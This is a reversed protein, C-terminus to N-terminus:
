GQKVPTTELIRAQAHAPLGIGLGSTPPARLSLPPGTLISPSPPSPGALAQQVRKGNNQMLVNTCYIQLLKKPPAGRFDLSCARALVRVPGLQCVTGRCQDLQWEM